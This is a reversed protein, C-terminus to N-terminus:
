TWYGMIILDWGGIIMLDWGGIIVVIRLGLSTSFNLNGM